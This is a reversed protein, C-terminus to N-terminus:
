DEACANEACTFTADSGFDFLFREDSDDPGEMEIDAPTNDTACEWDSSM